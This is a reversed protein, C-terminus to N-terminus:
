RMRIRHGGSSVRTYDTFSAVPAVDVEADIDSILLLFLLPGLVSGQPVGSVVHSGRSMCGVVALTQVHDSLFAETWRGVQGVIGLRRVKHLLVGNDVKDFAKEFDLYIVDM